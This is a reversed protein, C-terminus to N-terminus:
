SVAGILLCVGGIPLASCIVRAGVRTQIDPYSPLFFSVVSFVVSLALLGYFAFDPPVREVDIGSTEVIRDYAYLLAVGNAILLLFLLTHRTSRDAGPGKIGFLGQPPWAM